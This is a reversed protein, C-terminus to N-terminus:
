NKKEMFLLKSSESNLYNSIAVSDIRSRNDIKAASRHNKMWEKEYEDLPLKDIAISNDCLFVEQMCRDRKGQALGTEYYGAYHPEIQRILKVVRETCAQSLKTIGVKSLLYTFDRLNLYLKQPIGLTANYTDYNIDFNLLYSGSVGNSISWQVRRM